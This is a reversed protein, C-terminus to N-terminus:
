LWPTPGLVNVNVFDDSPRGLFAGLPQLKHLRVLVSEDDLKGIELARLGPISGGFVGRRERHAVLGDAAVHNKDLAHSSRFARVRTFRTRGDPQCRGRNGCSM